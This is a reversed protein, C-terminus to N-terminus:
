GAKIIDYPLIIYLFTHYKEFFYTLVFGETKGQPHGDEAGSEAGGYALPLESSGSAAARSGVKAM